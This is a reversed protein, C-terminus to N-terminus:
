ECRTTSPLIGSSMLSAAAWGVAASSATVAAKRTPAGQTNRDTEDVPADPVKKQKLAAGSWEKFSQSGPM